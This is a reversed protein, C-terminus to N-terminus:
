DPLGLLSSLGSGLTAQNRDTVRDWLTSLLCAHLGPVPFPGLGHDTLLEPCLHDREEAESLGLQSVIAGNRVNVQLEKKKKKQKTKMEVQM